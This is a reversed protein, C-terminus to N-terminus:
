VQGTTAKVKVSSDTVTGTGKTSIRVYEDKLPIALRYKGTATFNHEELAHDNTGVSITDTTQQYWDSNDHSFEVKIQMSTLSGKTFDVYVVLQNLGGCDEIVTGPVYSNTTIAAARVDHFRYDFDNM